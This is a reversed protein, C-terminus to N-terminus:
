GTPWSGVMVILEVRSTERGIPTVIRAQSCMM